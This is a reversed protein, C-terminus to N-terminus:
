VVESSPTSGATDQEPPAPREATRRRLRRRILLLVVVAPVALVALWPLAAGLAVLLVNATSILANWGQQLGGLFGGAQVATYDATVLELELTSMDVRDTLSDREAVLAELDAQRESLTTEVQLLEEASGSEEMIELLRDVSTELAEIRADLDRVASTVDRATESLETVEGLEDLDELLGALSDAPVRLTLSAHTTRGDDDTRERRSEVYGSAQDTWSLVEEAAESAERVEVEAYANTIVQRDAAPEGEGALDASEQEAAAEDAVEPAAMDGAASDSRSEDAGSGCGALLLCVAAAAALLRLFASM